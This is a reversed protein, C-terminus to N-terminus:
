RRAVLLWALLRLITIYLWILTVMLAYACYWELFRPAGTEVGAEITGFDLTLSLAALVVAIISVVIGITRLNDSYLFGWSFISIIWVFLYFLALGGIGVIVGFAMKQTPRVLRTVYLFLAVVFVCVTGVIAAAVIGETQANFMASIAGLVYGELLAYVFGLLAARRPAVAIMIAVFLAALSALWFGGPITVTTNGYGSGIDTAVPKTASAWGWAGGAVLFVLLVLTKFATGLVSMTRVDTEAFYEASRHGLAPNGSTLRPTTVAM